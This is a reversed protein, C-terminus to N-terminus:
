KLRQNNKQRQREKDRNHRGRETMVWEKNIKPINKSDKKENKEKKSLQSRNTQPFINKNHKSPTKANPHQSIKFFYLIKNELFNSSVSFRGFQVSQFRTLKTQHEM